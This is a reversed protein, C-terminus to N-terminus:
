RNDVFVKTSSLPVNSGDFFQVNGMYRQGATVSWGLAISAAGREYVSAPGSARLTQTGVAPGVVWSSLKYAAGGVPVAFGTVCASYTRATPNDLTVVEDSNGGASSGVSSGTGGPGNFVELDLDTSAGGTTDSNFLQFRAFQAGTPVVVDHCLRQAANVTASNVTAPVLGTPTVVLTGTYSSEISFVKSGKGSPRVDSVETPAALSLAMASLPSRVQRVGDSWTLSGFTWAGLTASSRAIEATFSASAGPALTLSSPTVTVNWGPLSASAVYTVTAAGKNTLTRTLTRAVIVGTATLSPLNLDSPHIRGLTACSGISAPPALNIGCLFRGYDAATVDYVLGPEASSNPNLHGAGYGWRNPDASGNSLKIDNTSTMLASKIAAPSWSPHLQKLLAASGAVHPTSMSTGSLTGFGPPPTFNGLVLADHQAVSLSAIYGAVVSSGPGSLDPKLINGNAKNPGRSSFSAMVPAVIGPLNYSLGISASAGATAAYARVADRATNQLHVSPVAHADVALTTATPNVLLMGIGGVRKVEASAALRAAATNSGRDCVVIKGAASASLSNALCLNASAETQGVAPIASGLVLASAPAGVFNNSFGSFVSGNGLTADAGPQRDHTSAAVTTLWPSIHAVENGPGSNGASAAVFVGAATANLYAIEVPDLFNLQTGSVSYNIVDVGDAVADDIARLTDPTYCGTLTSVTAQWCVKYAAIRARPAMGSMRGTVVGNSTTVVNANGGATSATHSGHGAGDRPSLYELATRTASVDFGASYYRAGILKNGCMAPTFGEGAVCTGTWGAPPPGYVQTGAVNYAAPQGSADLKDGFSPNEPWIGSDVLGIVIDEGKVNRSMGDLQSWLGGPASVGLFDPTRTTTLERRESETVSKVDTSAVLAQVQADTLSAAFGNFAVSYTHLARVGVRALVANRQNDLHGAYARAAPARVDLRGGAAPRTAALGRLSGDYIAVPPAALQVIYVKSGAAPLAGSRSAQAHSISPLISPLFAATCAAAALAVRLLNM